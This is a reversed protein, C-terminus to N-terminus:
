SEGCRRRTQRPDSEGLLFRGHVRNGFSGPPSVVLVPWLTVFPLGFITRWRDPDHNEDGAM